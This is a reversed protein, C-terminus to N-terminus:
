QLHEGRARAAPDAQWSWALKLDDRVIAPAGRLDAISRAVRLSRIVSRSSAQVPIVSGVVRSFMDSNLGSARVIDAARLDRNTTVGFGANRELGFARAASVKQAMAATLSETPGKSLDLFIRAASREEPMNIHIDIRDLIPGSLRQRYALLKPSGCICRKRASGAWGCPCNNCAAVLMVRANWTLRQRARSVRVEGTELPERLAELLDRRFEPLEDLFLVGGHALSIEGPFDGSGLVSAASAQHHPSRVPPRAAFLGAPLKESCSSHIRMATVHDEPALPPLISVIRAALMSKGTGPSGRLLMSHMGTAAAMVATQLTPDLIMDDFDPGNATAVGSEAHEQCEGSPNGAFVWSLVESLHDFSMVKLGRGGMNQAVGILRAVDRVNDRAIVIGEAGGHIAALAHAIIGRVPRLHGNIGLESVFVWRSTDIAREETGTQLLSALSVAIALDFQSGDKKVDAPIFSIMLRQQPLRIGLSELAARAREKGDNCIESTNGILQMGSFGRLLVCEVRILSANQADTQATLVLTGNSDTFDNADKDRATNSQM